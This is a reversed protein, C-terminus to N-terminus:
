AQNHGGGPESVDALSSGAVEPVHALAIDGLSLIGVLRKDRDMVPLRRVKNDGMNSAVHEVDEDDYCYRIEPTMVARVRTTTAKRRAVARIAIDRDTIMGILKDDEAVPLAGADLQAMAQAAEAITQDPGLVRVDQTMADRVKM